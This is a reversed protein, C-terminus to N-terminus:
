IKHLNLGNKVATINNINNSILKRKNVRFGTCRKPRYHYSHVGIIDYKIEFPLGARIWRNGFDRDDYGFGLIFDEDWGNIVYIDEKKLLALYHFGPNKWVTRRKTLISTEEGTISQDLVECVYNGRPLESLQKLVNTKPYVEPSTVLINNYKSNVVGINLAKVQCFYKYNHEYRIIRLFPFKEFDLDDKNISRTIIIYEFYDPIGFLVYKELSQKLLDLRDLDCPSVVSINTM